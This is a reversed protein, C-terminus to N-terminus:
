VRLVVVKLCLRLKTLWKEMRGFYKLVTLGRVKDHYGHDQGLLHLNLVGREKKKEM